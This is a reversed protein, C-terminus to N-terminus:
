SSKTPSKGNLANLWPDNTEHDSPILGLSRYVAKGDYIAERGRDVPDPFRKEQRLKSLKAASFRALKCVESTYMRLPIDM